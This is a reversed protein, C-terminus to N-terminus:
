VTTRQKEVSESLVKGRVLSAFVGLASLVAFIIFSIRLSVMFNDVYGESGITMNHMLISTILSVIAISISQGLVRMNGMFSSAVGYLTKDVSGMIANTNPSSFLAFGFGIFALNLIILVIPTQTSLFIFFFLGLASIGMGLSALVSPKIRDSLTGTFPSLVAMMVPQILLVLGAPATDLKLANQLYLSMVYTLAFTASYNILTAINAFAFPRNKVISAIPILPNPHKREFLFFVILLIVGAAFSAQYIVGGTLDNLGFLLSAQAFICLVIGWVDLKATAGRWEGKLKWVTLVIIILALLLTFYFVGRWTFVSTILGGLVPGCSLGIYVAAVNLGLAKGRSEPPTVSTVIAMATSFIMASSIGQLIRFCVLAALSASLACALSSVALMIMGILFIRKRGFQDALRGFLLLFSANAILYCSIVWNLLSQSGGFEIGISPIALNVANSMFPTIFSGIMVVILTIRAQSKNNEMSVEMRGTRLINIISERRVPPQQGYDRSGRL